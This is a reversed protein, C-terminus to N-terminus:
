AERFLVPDGAHDTHHFVDFVFADGIRVPRLDVPRQGVTEAPPAEQHDIDIAIWDAEDGSQATAQLAARFGAIRDTGGSGTVTLDPVRTRAEPLRDDDTQEVNRMAGRFVRYGGATRTRM